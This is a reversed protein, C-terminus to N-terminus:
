GNRRGGKAAHGYSGYSATDSSDELDPIVALVAIDPYTQLLYEQDRIQDDMLERVIVVGSALIFGLLAGLVANKSLSPSDKHAPKVAYDVIRASCGEVISAIKEPLLQAITNAIKEAEAPSHSYVNISFIETGNVASAEVMNKLQEYTYPLEATEIVDELTTRTNLIITYTDVLSQAAQLDGQSISVKTSGVSIANNNVYMLATAKYTPKIFLLTGALFIIGLVVAALILLWARHLLAQFLQLLDIEVEDNQERM